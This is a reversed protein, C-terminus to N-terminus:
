GNTNEGRLRNVESVLKEIEKELREIKDSKKIEIGDFIITDSKVAHNASSDYRRRATVDLLLHEFTKPSITFGEIPQGTREKVLDSLEKFKAFM